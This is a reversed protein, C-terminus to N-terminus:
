RDMWGVRGIFRGLLGGERKEGAHERECMREQERLVPACTGRAILSLGAATPAALCLVVQAEPRERERERDKERERERETETEGKGERYIYVIDISV